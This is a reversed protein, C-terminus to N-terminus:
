LICVALMCKMALLMRSDFVYVTVDKRDFFTRCVIANSYYQSWYQIGGFMIIEFSMVTGIFIVTVTCLFLYNRNVILMVVLVAIIVFGVRSVSTLILVKQWKYSWFDDLSKLLHTVVRRTGCNPISYIFNVFIILTFIWCASVCLCIQRRLFISM